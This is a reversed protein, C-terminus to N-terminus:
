RKKSSWTKGLHNIHIINESGPRSLQAEYMNSTVEVLPPMEFNGADIAGLELKQIDDTYYGYKQRFNFM